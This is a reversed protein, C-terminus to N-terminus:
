NLKLIPLNFRSLYEQRLLNEKSDIPADHDPLYRVSDDDFVLDLYLNQTSAHDMFWAYQATTLGLDALYTATSDDRNGVILDLLAFRGTNALRAEPERNFGPRALTLELHVPLVYVPNQPFSQILNQHELAKKVLIARKAVEGVKTWDTIKAPILAYHNVQPSALALELASRVAAITDLHDADTFLELYEPM